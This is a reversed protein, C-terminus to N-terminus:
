EDVEKYEIWATYLEPFMEITRAKYPEERDFMANVEAIVRDCSGLEDRFECCLNELANIRKENKTTRARLM